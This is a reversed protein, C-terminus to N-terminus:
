VDAIQPCGEVTIIKSVPCAKSLYLTTIGLCTGLEVISDPQFEHALRAVLKAIRPPKLAARALSSVSKKSKNVKSGAGLDTIQLIRKDAKLRTRLEEIPAVYEKESYDYIVHDILNYVFPSHVGHRNNSTLYHRIYDVFFRINAM